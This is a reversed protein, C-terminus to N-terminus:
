VVRAAQAPAFLAELRRLEDVSGVAVVIDGTEFLTEPSPSAEFKGDRKRMAVIM